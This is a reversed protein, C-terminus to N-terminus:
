HLGLALALEKAPMYGPLLEGDATVIAPTGTIGIDRGLQYQDAVPNSCKKASLNRGLKLATLTSNRDASCWATVIKQYSDSGVGARPFALYKVEIGLDNIAQMELHLKRCYGCDVDTFVFVSSRVPGKQPSFVLMDATPVKALKERRKAARVGDTVNVLTDDLRYLDGAFLYKGDESAYFFTGGDLEVAVFGQVPSSTVRVIPLDPRLARLREVVAADGALASNVAPLALMLVLVAQLAYRSSTVPAISNM